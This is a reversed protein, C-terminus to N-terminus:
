DELENRKRKKKQTANRQTVRWFVIGEEIRGAGGKKKKQHVTSKVLYGFKKKEFGM